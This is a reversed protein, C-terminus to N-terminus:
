KSGNEITGDEKLHITWEDRFDETYEHIGVPQNVLWIKYNKSNRIYCDQGSRYDQRVKKTKIFEFDQILEFRIRGYFTIEGKWIYTLSEAGDTTSYTWEMDNIIRSLKTIKQTPEISFEMCPGYFKNNKHEEKEWTTHVENYDMYPVIVRRQKKVRPMQLVAM